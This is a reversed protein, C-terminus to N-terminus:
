ARRVLGTVRVLSYWGRQAIARWLTPSNGLGRDMELVVTTGPAMAPAVWDLLRRVLKVQGM